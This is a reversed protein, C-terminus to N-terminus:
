SFVDKIDRSAYLVRIVEITEEIVVYFILYNEYGKVHWMRMDQFHKNQFEASKGLLPFKALQELSDEVAVLFFVGKDLNDEAIYVFCEEIDREAQPRKFIRYSM